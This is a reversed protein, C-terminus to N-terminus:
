PNKKIKSIQKIVKEKTSSDKIKSFIRKLRKEFIVKVM